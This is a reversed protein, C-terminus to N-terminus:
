FKPYTRSNQIQNPIHNKALVTEVLIPVKNKKRKNFNYKKRVFRRKMMADLVRTDLISAMSLRTDKIAQIHQLFTM